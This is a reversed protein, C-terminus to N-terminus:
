EGNSTRGVGLMKYFYDPELIIVVYPINWNKSDQYVIDVLTVAEATTEGYPLWQSIGKAAPWQSEIKELGYAAGAMAAAASVIKERYTLQKWSDYANYRPDSQGWATGIASVLVLILVCLRDIFKKKMGAM